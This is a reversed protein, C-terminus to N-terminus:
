PKAKTVYRAKGMAIMNYLRTLGCSLARKASSVSKYQVGNVEVPKGAGCPRYHLTTSYIREHTHVPLEKLMRAHAESQRTIM